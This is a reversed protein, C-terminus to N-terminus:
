SRRPGGDLETVRDCTAQNVRHPAVDEDTSAPDELSPKKRRLIQMWREALPQGVLRVLKRFLTDM